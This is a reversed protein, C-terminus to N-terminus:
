TFRYSCVQLVGGLLQAAFALAICAIGFIFVLIKGLVISKAETLQIKSYVAYAPKVYDELTVVALSNLGASITSLGASFIGKSSLFFYIVLWRGCLISLSFFEGAVFLGPLGPINSMTDMVYQPMM